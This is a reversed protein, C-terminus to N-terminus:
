LNQNEFLNRLESIFAVGNIKNNGVVARVFHEGRDFEFFLIYNIHINKVDIKLHFFM